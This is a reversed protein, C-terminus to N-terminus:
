FGNLTQYDSAGPLEPGKHVAYGACVGLQLSREISPDDYCLNVDFLHKFKNLMIWKHTCYLM